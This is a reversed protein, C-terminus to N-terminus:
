DHFMRRRMEQAIELMRRDSYKMAEKELEFLLPEFESYTEHCFHHIAMELCHQRIEEGWVENSITFKQHWDVSIVYEHTFDDDNRITDTGTTHSMPPAVSSHRVNTVRGVLHDYLKSM